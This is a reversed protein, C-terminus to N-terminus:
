WGESKRDGALIPAQWVVGNKPVTVWLALQPAEFSFNSTAAYEDWGKLSGNVILGNSAAQILTHWHGVIMIDFPTGMSEYNQLKKARMRLLPPWLGGIGQGGRAQDGHTLLYTTDYVPVVADTAEPIQFTIRSDSKLLLALQHALFWDFNDRARLKSRPKHTRRSHNGVVCPVHVSGFEEALMSIGSALRESWFLLSGLMTDENTETLEEHIDGSFIDGGMFLVVGDYDLGSLYDRTLEVTKNFYRDLRKVAIERNYANVNNMEEPKVVEDFHTDSLITCITAADKKSKKKGNRPQLWKPVSSLETSLNRFVQLERGVVLLESEAKSLAAKAIDREARLKAVSAAAVIDALDQSDDDSM